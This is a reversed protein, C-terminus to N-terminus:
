TVAEAPIPKGTYYGQILQIGMGVCANAEEETEIGEALPTSGTAVVMQVLDRVVQQKRPGAKDLSRILSMDFKVFHAPVDALELLRAQGAGFDDYAFLIDLDSLQSVFKRLQLINTIASEHIEVVIQLNPRLHRLHKLSVIFVESFMEKPHANVFLKKGQVRQAFKNIGFERFALSLDAERDMARALSFLEIPTKPLHPHNARGLLEYGVIKHTKADVIPQIAGSLGNGMLLEDFEAENPVFHESLSQTGAILMTNMQDFPLVSHQEVQIQRLKFEASAFHIIDNKKLLCYGEVRHRNVYTGNTSNEDILRLQGTIDSTLTAHTRSLGLNAIVLDNDKSRGIQCPLQTILFQTHTGDASASELAWQDEL